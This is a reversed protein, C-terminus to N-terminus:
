YVSIYENLLVDEIMPTHYKGGVKIQIKFIDDMKKVPYVRMYSFTKGVVENLEKAEFILNFAGEYHYPQQISFPKGRPSMLLYQNSALYDFNTINVMRRQGYFSTNEEMYKQMAAAEASSTIRFVTFNDHLSVDDAAVKFPFGTSFLHTKATPMSLESITTRLVIHKIENVEIVDNDNYDIFITMYISKGLKNYEDKFGQIRLSAKGNNNEWQQSVVNNMSETSNIQITLSQSLDIALGTGPSFMSTDATKIPLTYFNFFIM